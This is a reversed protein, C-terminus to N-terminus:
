AGDVLHVPLEAPGPPRHPWRKRLPRSLGGSALEAHTLAYLTSVRRAAFRWHGDVRAYEDDYRFSTAVTHEASAQESYGVVQGRAQDDDLFELVLGRVEHLSIPYLEGLRRYNAVIDTRGSTMRGPSGFVADPTFLAGLAEFEHDDIHLTYRILLEQIEGRAELRALRSEVNATSV